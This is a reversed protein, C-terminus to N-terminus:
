KRFKASMQKILTFLLSHTYVFDTLKKTHLQWEQQKPQILTTFSFETQKSIEGEKCPKFVRLSINSHRYLMYSLYTYSFNNIITCIIDIYAHIDMIDYIM